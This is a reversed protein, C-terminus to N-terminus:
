DAANTLRPTVHRSRVDDGSTALATARSARHKTTTVPRAGKLTRCREKSKQRHQNACETPKKWTPRLMRMAAIRSTPPLRQSPRDKNIPSAARSRSAPSPVLYPTFRFTRCIKRQAEPLKRRISRCPGAGNLARGAGNKGLMPDFLSWEQFGDRAKSSRRLQRCTIGSVEQRDDIRLLV